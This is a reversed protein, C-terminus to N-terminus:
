EPPHQSINRSPPSLFETLASEPILWNGGRTGIGPAARVARLKGARIYRRLTEPCKKLRKALASIEFYREEIV